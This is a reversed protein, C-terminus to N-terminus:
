FNKGNWGWYEIEEYKVYIRSKDIELTNSVISCIEQTMKEFIKEASRGFIKVEIFACGENSGKFYMHCNDEFNLMLWAETKGPFVEIAKAFKEKLEIEKKPEIKVNTKTNIYPM